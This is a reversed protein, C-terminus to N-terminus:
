EMPQVGTNERLVPSPGMERTRMTVCGRQRQNGSRCSNPHFRTEYREDRRKQLQAAVSLNPDRSYTVLIFNRSGKRIPISMLDYDSYSSWLHQRDRVEQSRASITLTYDSAANAIIDLKYTGSLAGCVEVLGRCADKGDSEDCDISGQAVPLEEWGRKTLPDFGIRRGRPDTLVIGITPPGSNNTHFAIDLEGLAVCNGADSPDREDQVERTNAASVLAVGGLHVDGFVARPVLILLSFITVIRINTVSAV